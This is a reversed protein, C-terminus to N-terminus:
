GKATQGEGRHEPHTCGPFVALYTNGQYQLDQHLGIASTYYGNITMQKLTVFFHELETQPEDEHEAARALAEALSTRAATERMRALGERWRKQIAADSAAVMRDAFLSVRAAHAGPSHDDAPIILEMLADLLKEEEPTFFELQHGDQGPASNVIQGWSRRAAPALAGLSVIKLATRREM